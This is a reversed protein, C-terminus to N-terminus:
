IENTNFYVLVPKYKTYTYVSPIINLFAQNNDENNLRLSGLSFHRKNMNKYIYYKYSYSYYTFNKSASALTVSQTSNLSSYNKSRKKLNFPVSLFCFNRKNWTCPFSLSLSFHRNNMNM